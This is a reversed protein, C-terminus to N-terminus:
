QSRLCQSLTKIRKAIDEPVIENLQKDTDFFPPEPDIFNKVREKSINNLGNTCLIQQWHESSYDIVKSGKIKSQFWTDVGKEVSEFPFHRVFETRATMQLGVPAQWEFHLVRDYYFDYFYGRPTVTWDAKKIHKEADRLMYPSYYNDAACLCFYESTGRAAEAIEIWKWSLYRKDELTLYSAHLCGVAKLRDSYKGFWKHGLQDDHKEEYVILEWEDKPPLMNCLSEMCLWAIKKSNYVPLAVTGKIM